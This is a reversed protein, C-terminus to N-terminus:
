CRSLHTHPGVISVSRNKWESGLELIRIKKKEKNRACVCEDAFFTHILVGQRLLSDNSSFRTNVNCWGSLWSCEGRWGWRTRTRSSLACKVRLTLRRTQTTCRPSQANAERPNFSKPSIKSFKTFYIVIKLFGKFRGLKSMAQVPERTSMKKQKELTIM